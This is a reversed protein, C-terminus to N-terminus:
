IWAEEEDEEEELEDLALEEEEWEEEELDEDLEEEDLALDGIEEFTVCSLDERDLEIEEAVCYDDEWFICTNAPCKVRPM